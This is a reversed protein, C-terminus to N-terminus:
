DVPAGSADAAMALALEVFLRLGAATPGAPQWARDSTTYATGAIDLHAWSVGDEVFEKLFMAATCPSAHRGGSNVLDAVDSKLQERYEPFLPLPWVRDGARESAARVRDVWGDPRGFLGSAHHGLATVCGGTLTAADILHTMGQRQAYVLADALILRGEADTNLVEITKGNMATLVDGPKMARNGPMNETAPVVGLVDVSPKLEAIARMAGIAAAAGAMDYKMEHMGQAPKISIGGSDFTVGKGVVGLRPGGDRGSRYRLVIMCPPEASGQAVGLLAGAGVAELEEPGLVEVGLGHAEGVRRAEEALGNPTLRNGPQLALSRALNAAEGLIRGRHLPEAWAAPPPGGVAGIVVEELAAKPREGTKYVGTEFDGAVLGDAVAQVLDGGLGEPLAVAASRVERRRLQRAAVGAARRLREPTQEDPKGIGVALLRPAAIGGETHVWGTEYLKGTLEKFGRARELRGGVRADLAAALPSLQDLESEFVVAVDVALDAVPGGALAVKM